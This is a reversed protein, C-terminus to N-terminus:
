LSYTITAIAAFATALVLLGEGVDIFGGLRLTVGLLLATISLFQLVMKGKGWTNAMMIGREGRARLLWISLPLLDFVVATIVIIPHYYKLAFVLAVLGILMKDAIPDFLIGWPTIQRRIRAISGDLMDTFSALIFLPVGFVFNSTTLLYLVVPTLIMRAVTIHNPTVFHPVLPLVVARLVYDHPYLKYPDRPM